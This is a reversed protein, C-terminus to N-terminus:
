SRCPYIEDRIPLSKRLEKMYAKEEGMSDYHDCFEITKRFISFYKYIKEDGSKKRWIGMACRVRLVYTDSEQICQKFVLCHSCNACHIPQIATDM